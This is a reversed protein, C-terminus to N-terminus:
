KQFLLNIKKSLSKSKKMQNQYIAFFLYSIKFNKMGLCFIRLFNCLLLIKESKIFINCISKTSNLIQFDFSPYIDKMANLFGEVSVKEIKKIKANKSDELSFNKILSRLEKKNKSTKFKIKGWDKLSGSFNVTKLNTCFYFVGTGVVEINKPITISQLNKCFAFAEYGIEKLSEPFVIEKLNECYKFAFDGIKKVNEPIKISKLNKCNVFAWDCIETVNSPIEVNEDNGNYKRLVDEIIEFDIEQAKKSQDLNENPM